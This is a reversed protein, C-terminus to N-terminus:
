VASQANTAHSGHRTHADARWEAAEETRIRNHILCWAVAIPIAVLVLFLGYAALTKASYRRLSQTTPPGSISLLQTTPVLNRSMMQFIENVKGIDGAIEARAVEIEQRIAGTDAASGAPATNRITEIVQKDYAVRRQLPVTAMVAKRYDDALTQRYKADASRGSLEIVRDLFTDSLQTTVPETGAAGAPRREVPAAAITSTNQAAPAPQEYLALAERNAEAEKQQAELLFQDYTLQTEAFRLTRPQRLAASSAIAGILPDLGFRVTQELRLRVEDLSVHDSPTRVQTATPFHKIEDINEIIRMAKGRLVQVAALADTTEVESPKVIDPTLIAVPFAMVHQENIEFDSWDNLVDLLIKRALPEPIIRAGAPRRFYLAYDNKAISAAKMDFERIIQDREVVSLKPDLIRSQYDAALRDYDRNSELVFVSRSFQDLGIYESMRNENYVRTLVPRSVLDAISFRSGNPFKGTGSTDFELRFPQVTVTESGVFLYTAVAGITYFLAVAAIIILIAPRYARLVHAFYAISIPPEPDVPVDFNVRPDAHSSDATM